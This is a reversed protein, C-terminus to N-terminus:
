FWRYKKHAQEIILIEYPRVIRIKSKPFKGPTAIPSM